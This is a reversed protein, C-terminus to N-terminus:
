YNRDNLDEEKFKKKIREKTKDRFRKMFFGRQWEWVLIIILLATIFIAAIKKNGFYLSIITGILVVYAWSLTKNLEELSKSFLSLIQQIQRIPETFLYWVFIKLRFIFKQIKEKFTM